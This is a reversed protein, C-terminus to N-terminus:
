QQLNQLNQGTQIQPRVLGFYNIAPNTGPRALNMYPSLVPATQYPQTYRQGVPAQPLAVQTGALVCGLAALIQRLWRKM